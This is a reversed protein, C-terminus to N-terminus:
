VDKNVKLFLFYTHNIVSRIYGRKDMSRKMRYTILPLSPRYFRYIFVSILKLYSPITIIDKFFLYLNDSTTPYYFDSGRVIILKAGKNVMNNFVEKSYSKKIEEITRKRELGYDRSRKDTKSMPNYPPDYVWVDGKPLTEPKFVDCVRGCYNEPKKDCCYYKIGLEKMIPILPAFQRNKIGCTPDVISEYKGKVYFKIIGYIVEHIRLHDIVSIPTKLYFHNKTKQELSEINIM